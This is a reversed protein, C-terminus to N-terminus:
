APSAAARTQSGRALPKKKIHKKQLELHSALQKLMVTANEKSVFGQRKNPKMLQIAAEFYKMSVYEKDYRVSLMTVKNCLERLEANNFGETKQALEQYFASENDNSDGGKPASRHKKVKLSYTQAYHELIKARDNQNPLTFEISLDFRGPRILAPDLKDKLNTAGIILIHENEDQKTLESLLITLAAQSEGCSMGNDLARSKGLGDIEDIFIVVLIRKNLEVYNALAKNKDDHNVDKLKAFAKQVAVSRRAKAFLEKINQSTRGYWESQLAASPLEFFRAKLEHAIARVYETKGTGPPGYFLMSRAPKLGKKLYKEPNRQMDWFTELEEPHTGVIDTLKTTPVSAIFNDIKQEKNESEVQPEIYKKIIYVTAASIAISSVVKGIDKLLDYADKSDFAQLQMSNTGLIVLFLSKFKRIKLM